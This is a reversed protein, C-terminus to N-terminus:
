ILRPMRLERSSSRWLMPFTPFLKSFAQFLPPWSEDKWEVFACRNEGKLPCGLFRRGTDKGEWCILRRPLKGHQCRLKSEHDVGGWEKTELGDPINGVSVSRSGGSSSSKTRAKSSSKESDDASSSGGGGLTSPEGSKAERARQDRRIICAVCPHGPECVFPVSSPSSVEASRSPSHMGGACAGGKAGEVGAAGRAM